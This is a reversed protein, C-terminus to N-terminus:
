DRFGSFDSYRTRGSGASDLNVDLWQKAQQLQREILEPELEVEEGGRGSAIRKPLQLLLLRCATCFARGKAASGEEGYSGNDAYADLIEQLTSSSDLPM